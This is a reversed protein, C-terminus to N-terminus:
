AQMGYGGPRPVNVVGVLVALTGLAQHVRRYMGAYGGRRALVYARLRPLAGKVAAGASTPKGGNAALKAMAARKAHHQSAAVYVSPDAVNADRLAGQMAATQHASAAAAAAQIASQRRAQATSQDISLSPFFYPHFLSTITVVALLVLLALSTLSHPSVILKFSTSSSPDFSAPLTAIYALWFGAVLLGTGILSTLIHIWLWSACAREPKAPPTALQAADLSMHHSPITPSLQPVLANPQHTGPGPSATQGRLSSIPPLQPAPISAPPPTRPPASPFSNARMRGGQGQRQQHKPPPIPKLFRAVLAGVVILALGSTMFAAPLPENIGAGPRAGSSGLGSTAEDRAATSCGIYKNQANPANFQLIWVDNTTTGDALQGGFMVVSGSEYHSTMAAGARQSPYPTDAGAAPAPLVHAWSSSDGDFYAVVGDKIDEESASGSGSSVVGGFMVAQNQYKGAAIDPRSAVAAGRRPAPCTDVQKWAGQGGTMRSAGQPSALWADARPCREASCGGFALVKQGPMITGAVDARASPTTSGMDLKSWAATVTSYNYNAAVGSISLAYSATSPKGDAASGLSALLTTSYPPQNHEEPSVGSVANALAPATGSAPIPAWKMQTLHFGWVDSLVQGNVGMGLGVIVGQRDSTTPLDSGAIAGFRAPPRLPRAPNYDVLTWTASYLDLVWTDDQPVNDRTRGGFLVIKKFAHEYVFVADRRPGPVPSNPAIALKRWQLAPVTLAPDVISSAPAPPGPAQPWPQALPNPRPLASAYASCASLLLLLATGIALARPPAGRRCLLHPPSGDRHHDIYCPRTAMAPISPIHMTETM